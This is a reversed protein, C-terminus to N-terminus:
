APLVNSREAITGARSGLGASPPGAEVSAIAAAAQSSASRTWVFVQLGASKPTRKGSAGIARGWFPGYHHAAAVISIHPQDLAAPCNRGREIGPSWGNCSGFAPQGKAKSATRAWSFVYPSDQFLLGTEAHTAFGIVAHLSNFLRLPQFRM